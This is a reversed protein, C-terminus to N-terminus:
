RSVATPGTAPQSESEGAPEPVIQLGTASNATLTLAELWARNISPQRSGYFKYVIPTAPHIWVITRGDGTEPADRWTFHFSESRRVKAGIVLQLHALLRDDFEVVVSSDITLKGM